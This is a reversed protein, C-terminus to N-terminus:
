RNFFRIKLENEIRKLGYLSWPFYRKRVRHNEIRRLKKYARDSSIGDTGFVAVVHPVHWSSAGNAYLFRVFLEYDGAIRYSTDYGGYRAFLDRKFFSAQHPLMNGVLFDKPLVDPFKKVFSRGDVAVCMFDGYLIDKEPAESVLGLARTDYFSDGANMFVLYDGSAREVGKNMADYIGDDPESSMHSIKHGYENLIDLTRDTSGGDIVIWEYDDFEQSCISECTRRISEEENLSVTIISFRKM